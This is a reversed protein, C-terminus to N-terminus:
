INGWSILYPPSNGVVKVWFGTVEDGSTDEYMLKFNHISDTPTVDVVYSYFMQADGTFTNAVEIIGSGYKDEIQNLVYNEFKALTVDDHVHKHDVVSWYGYKIPIAVLQWGGELEIYGSGIGSSTTACPGYGRTIIM